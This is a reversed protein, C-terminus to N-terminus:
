REQKYTSSSQIREDKRKNRRRLHRSHYLRPVVHIICCSVHSFSTTSWGEYFQSISSVVCIIRISSIFHLLPQVSSFSDDRCLVISSAVFFDVFIDLNCYNIALHENNWFLSPIYASFICSFITAWTRRLSIHIRPSFNFKTRCLQISETYWLLTSPM